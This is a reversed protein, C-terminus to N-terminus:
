PHAAEVYRFCAVLLLRLTMDRPQAGFRKLDYADVDGKVADVIFQHLFDTRIIIVM